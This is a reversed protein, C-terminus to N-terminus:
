AVEIYDRETLIADLREDHPELPLEDVEQGSYALGLAFVPKKARLAAYRVQEGVRAGLSLALASNIRVGKDTIGEAESRAPWNENLINRIRRVVAAAKSGIATAYALIRPDQEWERKSIRKAM